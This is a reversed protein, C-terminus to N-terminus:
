EECEVGFLEKMRERFGGTGAEFAAVLEPACPDLKELLAIAQKRSYRRVPVLVSVSRQLKEFRDSNGTTYTRDDKRDIMQLGIHFGSEGGYKATTHYIDLQGMMGTPRPSYSFVGLGNGRLPRLIPQPRPPRDEAHKKQQKAPRWEYRKANRNNRCLLQLGLKLEPWGEPRSTSFLIEKTESADYFNAVTVKDGEIKVIEFLGESYSM